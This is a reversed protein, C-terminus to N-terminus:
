RKKVHCLSGPSPSAQFPSIPSGFFGAVPAGVVGGGSSFCITCAVTILSSTFHHHTTPQTFCRKKHVLCPKKNLCVRCSHAFAIHMLVVFCVVAATSLLPLLVACDHVDMDVAPVLSPQPCPWLAGKLRKRRRSMAAMALPVGTSTTMPVPVDLPLSGASPARRVASSGGNLAPIAPPQLGRKPSALALTLTLSLLFHQCSYLSHSFHPYKTNFLGFSGFVSLEVLTQSISYPAATCSLQHLLLRCGVLSRHSSAASELSSSNGPLFDDEDDDDDGYGGGEAEEDDSSDDDGGERGGASPNWM